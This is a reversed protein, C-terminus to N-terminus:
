ANMRQVYAQLASCGRQFAYRLQATYHAMDNGDLEDQQSEIEICLSVVSQVGLTAASGKLGHVHELFQSTQGQRAFVDLQVLHGRGSSLFSQLLHQRKHPSIIISFLEDLTDENLVTDPKTDTEAEINGIDSHAGNDTHEAVKDLLTVMQVPKTIYDNAGAQMCERVTNPLADASLMLVPTSASTDMFRFQKLVELGSVKPMNMDLLVLDFTADNALAELAQEGDEALYVRHGAQRLVALIVEQNVPNDEALLIHLPNAAQKRQLVEVMSIVDDSHHVASAAHLANFLLREQVPPHLVASFGGAIMAADTTRQQDLGILIMNLDALEQKDRVARAMIEPKCHLAHMDLILVDFGQGSSWADVLMSLVQTEERVLAVHVGWGQLWPEVSADAEEGDSLLLAHLRSLAQAGNQEAQRKFPLEITFTSGEDQKSVLAIRGGMLEALNKAITTGLGTGGFRRTISSDAQTFREFIMTQEQESMGIGTDRICFRLRTSDEDVEVMEVAIDVGGRQTFKVANGIINVLIQKLRKPDGLLAYPVEPDLLLNVAIGKDIAQAEFMAVVAHMLQHLDFAEHALELKGAEIKSIDLIREILGLLHYSSDRIVNAFHMQEPSLNSSRSLDNMGIIGNLPTRLEHSMNAIFRSKAENAAEAADIAHNLKRILSAMFMPVVALIILMSLVLGIHQHWFPGFLTIPLFAALSILTGYILYKLGFRFGNGTIVWLYITVFIVGDEGEALIVGLSIMAIDATIGLLRRTRNKDPSILIWALIGLTVPLYALSLYCALDPGTFFFYISISVAILIRFLTQEHESDPRNQLREKAWILWNTTM